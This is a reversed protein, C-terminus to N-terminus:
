NGKNRQTVCLWGWFFITELLHAVGPTPATRALLCCTLCHLEPGDTPGRDCCRPPASDCPKFCLSGCRRPWCPTTVAVHVLSMLWLLSPCTTSQLRVICTMYQYCRTENSWFWASASERWAVQQCTRWCIRWSPKVHVSLSGTYAFWVGM